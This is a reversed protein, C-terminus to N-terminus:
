TNYVGYFVVCLDYIRCICRTNTVFAKLPNLHRQKTCKLSEFKM